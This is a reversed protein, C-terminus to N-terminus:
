ADLAAALAPGVQAPVELVRVGADALAEAKSDWGGRGGMVIAGAHGMRKGPPASRGAIFAVVPKAMTAAFEAAREEMDGGIEGVVVVADTGPDHEFAELADRFTVGPIPDGGVGVFASQGYGAQVLNLCILTGLSGSRSVVGIRGPRFINDSFGPMIGVFCEGPTVLGATNPGVVQTGHHRAAAHIAMVDQIPIFETLVVLLRAGAACADLAAARAAMPPVFMVAVEFDVARRAAAASAFVPLGDQTTGAKNPNVGGVVATGYDRMRATWFRGQRGTIGQVLVPQNRRVIM